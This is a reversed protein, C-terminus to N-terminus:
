PILSVMSKYKLVHATELLSIICSLTRERKLTSSFMFGFSIKLLVLTMMELLPL